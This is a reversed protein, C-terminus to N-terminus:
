PLRSVTVDKSAHYNAGTLVAGAVTSIKVDEEELLRCKDAGTGLPQFTVEDAFRGFSRPPIALNFFL